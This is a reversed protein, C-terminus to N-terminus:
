KKEEKKDADEIKTARKGIKGRLYYLKSRHV